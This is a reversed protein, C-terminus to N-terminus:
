RDSYAVEITNSPLLNLFGPKNIPFEKPLAWTFYQPTLIQEDSVDIGVVAHERVVEPCKTGCEVILNEHNESANENGHLGVACFLGMILLSRLFM